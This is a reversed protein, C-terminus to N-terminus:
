IPPFFNIYSYHHNISPCNERPIIRMFSVIKTFPYIELTQRKIEFCRAFSSFEKQLSYFFFFLDLLHIHFKKFKAQELACELATFIEDQLSIKCAM